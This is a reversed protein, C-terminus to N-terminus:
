KGGTLLTEWKNISFNKMGTSAKEAKGRSGKKILSPGVSSITGARSGRTGSLSGAIGSGKM